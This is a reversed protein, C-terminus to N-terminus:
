DFPSPDSDDPPKIRSTISVFIHGIVEVIALVLPALFLLVPLLFILFFLCGGGERKKALWVTVRLLGALALGPLLILYVNTAVTSALTSEESGSLIVIFYSVIFVLCSILSMRFTRVRDTISAEFGFARLSAHSILQAVAVTVNVTIVTLAPLLNIMSNVLNEVNKPSLLEKMEETTGEPLPIALIADVYATRYAEVLEGIVTLNLTGLQCYLYALVAVLFSLLLALSTACLVGVRTLGDEKAASNRTGWALVLMPLLPILVTLAALLSRSVAAAVAYALLPILPFIWAQKKPLTALLTAGEGVAFVICLLVTTPILSATLYATFAGAALLLPVTAKATRTTFWLYVLLLVDVALSVFEIIHVLTESGTFLTSIGVGTMAVAVGLLIYLFVGAVGKIPKRPIPCLAVPASEPTNPANM